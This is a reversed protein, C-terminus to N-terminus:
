IEAFTDVLHSGTLDLFQVNRVGLFNEKSAIDRAGRRQFCYIFVKGSKYWLKNTKGITNLIFPSMGYLTQSRESMYHERFGNM